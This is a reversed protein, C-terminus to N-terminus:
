VRIGISHDGPSLFLINDVRAPYNDEGKVPHSYTAFPQGDVEVISTTADRQIFTGWGSGKVAILQADETRERSGYVAAYNVSACGAITITITAAAIFLRTSM